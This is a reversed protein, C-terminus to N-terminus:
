RWRGEERQKFAVFILFSRSIHQRMVNGPYLILQFYLCRFLVVYIRELFCFPAQFDEEGKVRKSLHLFVVWQPSFTM